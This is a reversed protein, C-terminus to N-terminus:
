QKPRTLQRKLIYKLTRAIFSYTTSPSKAEIAKEVDHARIEDKVYAMVLKIEEKSPIKNIKGRENKAKDLLSM